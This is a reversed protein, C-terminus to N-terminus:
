LHKQIALRYNALENNYEQVETLIRNYKEVVRQYLIDFDVSQKPSKPLQSTQLNSRFNQLAVSSQPTNQLQLTPTQTPQQIKQLTTTQLPTTQLPTTQSLVPVDRSSLTQSITSHPPVSAIPIYEETQVNTNTSDQHMQDPHLQDQYTRDQNMNDQYARDQYTSQEIEDLLEYARRKNYEIDRSRPSRSRDRRSNQDKDVIQHTKTDYVKGRNRERQKIKEIRKIQLKRFCSFCHKSGNTQNDCIFQSYRYTNDMSVCIRDSRRRYIERVIDLHPDCYMKHDPVETHCARGVSYFRCNPM